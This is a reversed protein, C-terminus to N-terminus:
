AVPDIRRVRGRRTRELRGLVIWRFWLRIVDRLADLLARPRTGKAVGAPAPHLIDAGGHDHRGAVGHFTKGPPLWSARRMRTIQPCQRRADAKAEFM